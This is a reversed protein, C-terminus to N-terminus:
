TQQRERGRAPRVRQKMLVVTFTTGTFCIAEINWGQASWRNLKEELADNSVYRHVKYTREVKVQSV